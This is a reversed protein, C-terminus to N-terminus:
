VTHFELRDFTAPDRVDWCILKKSGASIKVAIDLYTQCNEDRLRGNDFFSVTGNPNNFACVTHSSQFPHVMVTLLVAKCDPDWQHLLAAALIAFGDCDDKKKAWTTQPYSICDFLHLPGDMTWIVKALNAGIEALSSVQPLATSLYKGEFLRRRLRSWSYRGSRLWWTLFWEIVTNM